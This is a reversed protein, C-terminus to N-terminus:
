ARLRDDGDIDEAVRALEVLQARDAVPVAEREDLVRALCEPSHVLAPPEARVPVRSDEGEIRVLLDRGALAARDRGVRLGLVLQEDREAVLSPELGRAPELVAAEAEVVAQVVDGGRKPNALQLLELLDEGAPAFDGREPRAELLYGGGM